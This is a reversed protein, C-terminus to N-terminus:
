AARAVLQLAVPISVLPGRGTEATQQTADRSRASDHYRAKATDIYVVHRGHVGKHMKNKCINIYRKDTNPGGMDKNSKGIAIAYDLEGPKGTKSNDMDTLPIFPQNEANGSAQGVTLIDPGYRKALERFKGYVAKLREHTAMDKDGTFRVKDGQDIIVVRVNFDQLLQEIDEVSVLAEDHFLIRKGGRSEFEKEAEKEYESLQAVTCDLMSQYLRIMVREGGEENGIYLLSEGEQLQTAFHQACFVVFTTKGTDVRAFVHGLTGGRLDGLDQNLCELPWSIGPKRIQSDLLKKLSHTVFLSDVDRAIRLKMENFETILKASEALTGASNGELAESLKFMLESSYYRELINNFNEEVLSANLEVESLKKFYEELLSNKKSLPNKLTHFLILEEVSLTDKEPYEKFYGRLSKLLSKTEKEFSLKSIYKYYKGLRERNLLFKLLVLEELMVPEVM